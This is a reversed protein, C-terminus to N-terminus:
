CVPTSRVSRLYIGSDVVSASVLHQRWPGEPFHKSSFTIDTLACGERWVGVKGKSRLMNVQPKSTGLCVLYPVNPKSIPRTRWYANKSTLDMIYQKNGKWAHGGTNRLGPSM